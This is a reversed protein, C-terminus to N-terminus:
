GALPSFTEGQTERKKKNMCEDGPLSLGHAGAFLYDFEEGFDAVISVTVASINKAVPQSECFMGEVGERAVHLAGPESALWCFVGRLCHFSASARGGGTGARGM